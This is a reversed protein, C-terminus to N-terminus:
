QSMHIQMYSIYIKLFFHPLFLVFFVTPNPLQLSLLSANTGTSVCQVPGRQRSFAEFTRTKKLQSQSGSRLSFLYIYVYVKWITSDSWPGKLAIQARNCELSDFLSPWNYAYWDLSHLWVNSNALGSLCLALRTQRFNDVNKSMKRFSSITRWNWVPLAAREVYPAEKTTNDKTGDKALTKVIGSVDASLQKKSFYIM